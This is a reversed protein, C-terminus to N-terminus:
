QVLQPLRCNPDVFNTGSHKQPNLPSVRLLNIASRLLRPPAAPHGVKATLIRLGVRHTPSQVRRAPEVQPLAARQPSRLAAQGGATEQQSRLVVQSTATRLQADPAAQGVITEVQDDRDQRGAATEAQGDQEEPDVATEV